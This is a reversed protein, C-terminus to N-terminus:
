SAAPGQRLIVERHPYPIVIGSAKFADWLALLVDGRVNTVGNTPDDIFFRLTFDLSSDGFAVMHCVAPYEPHDKIVRAHTRAAEVAIRRVQHPDSDYSVGFKIEIRVYPDLYSWNQVQQTILDENPILIERGDRMSVSAYRANLSTIWGFTDGVTIVDGPKISKDLLLIIGSVLNSVVKQLGFGLGVGLAGSILTLATFDVGIAYLGFVFALLMLVFRAIKGVLVRMAPTFDELTDLRRDVFHSLAAAGWVLASLVIVGQVLTLLSFRFENFQLAFSDLLAAAEPLIGLLSLTVFIWGGVEVLRSLTRNRIIRSAISIFVWATVLSAALSLFYSRSDWTAARAALVGLWLFMAFFIWHLRRLIIATARLPGHRFRRGRIWSELAPTALRAALFALSFALAVTGLQAITWAIRSGDIPLGIWLLVGSILEPWSALWQSFARLDAM